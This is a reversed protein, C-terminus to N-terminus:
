FTLLGQADEYPIADRMYVFATGSADTATLGDWNVYLGPQADRDSLYQDRLGRLSRAADPDDVLHSVGIKTLDADALVFGSLPSALPWAYAPPRAQGGGSAASVHLAGDLPTGRDWLTRALAELTAWAPDFRTGNTMCSATPTATRISRTGVDFLGPPPPPCDGLPSLDDLPLGSEIASVEAASLTGTRFPRDRSLPDEYWGGGIWYACTGDVSLMPSGNEVRVLSGRLENGPLILAWLRLHPMGDCLPQSGTDSTTGTDAVGGDTGADSGAGDRSAPASSCAVAGLLAAMVGPYPKM